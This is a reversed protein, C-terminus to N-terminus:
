ETAEEDEFNVMSGELWLTLNLIMSDREERPSEAAALVRATADDVTTELDVGNLALFENLLIFAIRKNGDVCAQSKALAYLLVAAKAALDPYADMGAYSAAPAELASRVVGQNCRELPM